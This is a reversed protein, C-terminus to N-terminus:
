QEAIFRKLDKEAALKLKQAGAKSSKVAVAVATTMTDIAKGFEGVNDYCWALKYM